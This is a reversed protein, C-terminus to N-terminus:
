LIQYLFVWAGDDVLYRPGEHKALFKWKGEKLLEDMKERYGSQPSNLSFEGMSFAILGGPKVVHVLDDFGDGKGHAVSFVGVSVAADCQNAGVGLGGCGPSGMAGQYLSNYVGKARAHELMEPTLDVGDINKYGRKHLEEGVLGTGCGLDLIGVDNSYGFEKRLSNWLAM